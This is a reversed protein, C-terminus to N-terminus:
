VVDCSPTIRRHDPQGQDRPHTEVNRYWSTTVVRGKKILDSKLLVSRSPATFQANAESMDSIRPM